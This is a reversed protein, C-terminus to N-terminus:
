EPLSDNDLPADDRLLRLLLPEINDIHIDRQPYAIVIDAEKFLKHIRYRVDSMVVRGDVAPGLEVWFYVSFNLSNDGFSEFLVKPEPDDLVQGHETVAHMMLRAVDRPSANYSVGVEVQLRVKSDSLTWNILNTELFKSNPILLDYGSFMRLRSARAGINTITGLKGEIEVIDGMRIPQEGMLILGSLFNNILNQAGFGIGLAVAGGLFTFITLPINVYDLALYVVILFLLYNTLKVIILVANSRLKLKLLAYNQIYRTVLRSIFLGLVLILMMYFLKRGTISEGGIETLERDFAMTVIGLAKGGIDTLREKLPRDDQRMRAEEIMREVLTITQALRLQIRNRMFISESLVNLRDQVIRRESNQGSMERLSGELAIVQGRLSTGRQEGASREKRFAELHDRLRSIIGPWDPKERALAPNAIMFRLEWLSITDKELEILAELIALRAEAAEAQMRLLHLEKELRPRADTQADRELAAEAARLRGEIREIEGRAQLEEGALEELVAQQREEIGDLEEQRFLTQTRALAVHRRTTELELALTAMHAEARKLEMEAAGLEAENAEVLLRATDVEFQASQQAEQSAGRLREVSRNLVTKAAPIDNREKAVADALAQLASREAEIDMQKLDVKDSLSDLFAMAYPPPEQLQQFGRNASEAELRRREANEHARLAGLHRQLATQMKRLASVRAQLLDLSIESLGERAATELHRYEVLDAEVAAIGAQLREVEEAFQALHSDTEQPGEAAGANGAPVSDQAHVPEFVLAACFVTLAIVLLCPWDRPGADIIFTRVRNSM